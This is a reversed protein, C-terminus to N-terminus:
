DTAADQCTQDNIMGVSCNTCSSQGTQDNYLGIACTQCTKDTTTDASKGSPCFLQLSTFSDLSINGATGSAFADVGESSNVTCSSESHDCVLTFSISASAANQQTVSIATAGVTISSPVIVDIKTVSAPYSRSLVTSLKQPLNSDERSVIYTCKSLTSSFAINELEDLPTGCAAQVANAITTDRNNARNGDAAHGVIPRPPLVQACAASLLALTLLRFSM